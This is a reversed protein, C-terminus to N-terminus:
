DFCYIRQVNECVLKIALDDPLQSLFDWSAVTSEPRDPTLGAIGYFEDGGMIFRCDLQWLVGARILGRM